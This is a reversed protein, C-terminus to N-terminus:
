WRLLAAGVSLGAGTGLLLVRQGRQLRGDQAAVHLAMPISAAVCNGYEGIIDVVREAAFGYRPLAALAPGSAQHPVVLDIDGPRLGRPALLEELVEEVKRRARRYVKPGDMHFLDHAPTYHPASPPNLSGGGAVQTLEAGEPWTRMVYGELASAEGEPTREVVAAGAGDGILVASEPEEFNRAVSTIEASVILVREAGGVALLGSAVQLAALFSLCSAHVTFGPLGDLGLARQIFPAGDPLAQRAGGSANLILDPLPGEGLALRAAAAGLEAVDAGDAHHRRKVGTRRIIWRADRGVRPALEEATVVRPPAYLGTGVIKMRM